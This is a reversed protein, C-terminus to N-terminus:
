RLRRYLDLMHAPLSATVWLAIWPWGAGTLAARLAMLLCFGPLLALLIGSAGLRGRALALLLVAEVVLFAIM